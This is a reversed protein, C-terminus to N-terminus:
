GAVGAQERERRIEHPEAAGPDRQVVQEERPAAVEIGVEPGVEVESVVVLVCSDSWTVVWGLLLGWRLAWRLGWLLAWLLWSFCRSRASRAAAARLSFCRRSRRRWIRVAIPTTTAIARTTPAPKRMLEIRSSVESVALLIGGGPLWYPTVM